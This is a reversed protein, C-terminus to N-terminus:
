RPRNVRYFKDFVRTWTRRCPNGTRPGTGRDGGGDGTQRAIIDIPTNPPSYKAANDLLNVLVQEILVFDLPVAPLDDPVEVCVPRDALRDKMSALAAGIIDQM